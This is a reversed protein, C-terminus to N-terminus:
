AYKGGKLFQKLSLFRLCKDCIESVVVEVKLKASEVRTEVLTSKTILSSQPLSLIVIKVKSQPM